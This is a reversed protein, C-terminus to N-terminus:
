STRRAFLDTLYLCEDASELFHCSVGEPEDENSDNCGDDCSDDAKNGDPQIQLKNLDRLFTHVNEKVTVEERSVDNLM